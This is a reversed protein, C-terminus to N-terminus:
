VGKATLILDPRIKITESSNYYFGIAGFDNNFTHTYPFESIIEMGGAFVLSDEPRLFKWFLPAIHNPSGWVRIVSRFRPWHGDEM